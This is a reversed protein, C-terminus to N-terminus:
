PKVILLDSMGTWRMDAHTWGKTMAKDELTTLGQAMFLEKNAIIHDFVEDSTMGAVNFDIANMYRHQSNTAGETCQPTRLGRYHFKGGTHWNNITIGKGFHDRLFEAFKVMRESVFWRSKEGFQNFIEQPVFERIDFHESIQTNM